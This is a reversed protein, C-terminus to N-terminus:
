LAPLSAAAVSQGVRRAKEDPLNVSIVKALEPFETKLVEQCRAMVIDGCEGSTVRGLILVHSLDYYDAYHAVAYGLYVGITEFILRAQESGKALQEQVFALRKVDSLGKDIAIGVAPALRFVAQQSLYNAGCGIDKSWDDQPADAAYDIPAFALEDLWKTVNGDRNVYGGAESSGLAIGLIANVGLSMSGALATVEGDNIVEFPVGWERAIRPFLGGVGEDFKEKEVGRFLSAIRVRNNIIIGASSGGIADVRPLKNAALYLGSMIAHYHYRPDKQAKPNWEVEEAEAFDSTGNVVASFKCDSAGLDFGVRCGELHRGLPISAEQAPPVKDAATVVVEFPKEYVGAYLDMDFARLGTPTYAQKIYEGIEAPGGVYVKHGGRQWLLFKVAREVYKLNAEAQPHGKPLVHTQYLSRTGDAQEIGITLPVPSGSAEVDTLFAHNCLVAPRFSDDLPPKIGPKVDYTM